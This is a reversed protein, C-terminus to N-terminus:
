KVLVPNITIESEATVEIQNKWEKYGLLFIRITHVGATVQLKSPTMGRFKEDVFISAGEPTSNVTINKLSADTAIPAPALADGAPLDKRTSSSDQVASESQTSAAPTPADTGLSSAIYKRDEDSVAVPAGTAGRLAMLVARYNDKHAQLLVGGLNGDQTKYEIGVFHLRTKHFLGFLALPTLLIGLTVMTGVRRHAEQGYSLGSVLRPDIKLVQDDKLRLTIWDSDVTLINDWDKPDLTSQITGGNYRIKDFSSAAPYLIMAVCLVISIVTRMRLM